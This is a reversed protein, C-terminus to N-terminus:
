RLHLTAIEWPRLELTEDFPELTRGRLDCTRGSRGPVRVTAATATPNFVRVVLEPGDRVVASVQAGTVTLACGVDRADKGDGHAVVVELPFLVDETMAYPDISPDVGIAYRVDLPKQLQPGELPVPPGAPLPRYNMEVRSLMGTCRALTIAIAAASEAGDPLSSGCDDTLEYELLGDHVVTLGGASVFRRSFTTAMAKETRGGEGYLGREVVAFACEARSRTAAAPLPLVARVRHDRCRNDWRHRVRVYPEGARLEVDTTVEVSVSGVRRRTTDDIHHPWAYVSTVRMLGRVPGHELTEVTVSEPGGVVVDHDPPSFNYTDGHDGSEVLRGYGPIGNISFSGEQADVGITVLENTLGGPVSRVPAASSPTLDWRRWGFAPVDEIRWLIRRKPPQLIRVHLPTGPRAELRARVEAKIDDVLLNTQLRDDCHLTLAVADDSEEVDAYNVFTSGDIRQSRFWLMWSWTDGPGLLRDSVVTPREDVLQGGEVPGEGPVLVEIVGGRSRSTPNAVIAGPLAHRAALSTLAREALGEAIQRAEAYRTLVADVVEDASCACSSDHAANRMMELWAADLLADPWHDPEMWLACLPEARGELAREARAAAQRVDTRNSAVGMLLNARAGSRLEGRWHPLPAETRTRDLAEALSAITLVFRSQLRNAKALVAPIGLQPRQHDTGNMLLLDGVLAPGIDDLVANVRTVLAGADDPLAAGNGYGHWLYEARVESGDPSSWMFATRDIALPVGRWVVAQDFGFLRLIQPMQAIHGFMDPLYGVPMAGGLSEAQRIGLRLNRVLTEGSVCFEDPLTYWPGVAVRGSRVLRAIRDRAEPRVALYDDIVATQGDLLYHGYSEDAELAPLLEDLLDVLRLRFTQFPEYWERDWHTHPVVNVRRPQVATVTDAM